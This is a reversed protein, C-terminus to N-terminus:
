ITASNSRSTMNGLAKGICLFPLLSVFSRHSGALEKKRMTQWCAGRSSNLHLSSRNMINEVDVSFQWMFGMTWLLRLAFRSQSPAIFFHSFFSSAYRLSTTMGSGVVFMFCFIPRQWMLPSVRELCWVISLAILSICSLAHVEICRISSMTFM